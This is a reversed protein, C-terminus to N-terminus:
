ESPYRMGFNRDIFEDYEEEYEWPMARSIRSAVTGWDPGPSCDDCVSRIEAELEGRDWRTMLWLGSGILVPDPRADAGFIWQHYTGSELRRSLWAPSCVVLDFRDSYTGTKPGIFAWVVVGFNGVDPVADSPRRDEGMVVLEKLEAVISEAVYV